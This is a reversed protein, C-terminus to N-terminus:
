RYSGHGRFGYKNWVDKDIDLYVDKFTSISSVLDLMEMVTSEEVVAKGSNLDNIRQDDLEHDITDRRIVPEYVQAMLHTFSLLSILVILHIRKM